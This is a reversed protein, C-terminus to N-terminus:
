YTPHLARAKHKSLKILILFYYLAILKQNQNKFESIIADDELLKNLTVDGDFHKDFNNEKMLSGFQNWFLSNISSFSNYSHTLQYKFTLM